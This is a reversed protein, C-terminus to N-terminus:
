DEFNDRSAAYMFSRSKEMNVVMQINLGGDSLEDSISYGDEDELHAFSEASSSEPSPAPHLWTEYQTSCCTALCSMASIAIVVVVNVSDFAVLAKLVPSYQHFLLSCNEQGDFVYCDNAADVCYCDAAITYDSYYCEAATKFYVASGSGGYDANVCAKLSMIYALSSGDLIIGILSVTAAILSVACLVAVSVSYLENLAVDIVFIQRSVLTAITIGPSWYQRRAHRGVM